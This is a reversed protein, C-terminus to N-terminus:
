KSLSYVARGKFVGRQIKQEQMPSELFARVKATTLEMGVLCDFHMMDSLTYTKDAEMEAVIQEGIAANEAGKTSNKGKAANAKKEYSAKISELKEVVEADFGIADLKEIASNLAAVSTVKKTTTTTTTSM